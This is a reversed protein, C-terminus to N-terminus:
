VRELLVARDVGLQQCVRQWTVAGLFGEAILSREAAGRHPFSGALAKEALADRVAQQWVQPVVEPAAPDGEVIFLGYVLRRGRIEWAADMHRWVQHRGAMWKTNTTPGAETRKGEVVVLADPTEIFADPYTRGELIYWAREAPTSRLLGLAEAITGPDRDILRQRKRGVDDDGLDLTDMPPALNRILWSLLAVPPQLGLEREGWHGNVFTLDADRPRTSVAPGEALSLLERIWGRSLPKLAEFVPVVRTKSSDFQGGPM